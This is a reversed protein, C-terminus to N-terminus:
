FNHCHLLYSIFNLFVKMIAMLEILKSSKKTCLFAPFPNLYHEQKFDRNNKVNKDVNFVALDSKSSFLSPQCGCCDTKTDRIERVIESVILLLYPSIVFFWIRERRQFGRVNETTSLIGKLSM